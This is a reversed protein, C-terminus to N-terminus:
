PGAASFKRYEVYVGVTRGLLLGTSLAFLADVLVVIYLSVGTLPAASPVTFAFPNVNLVFLDLLLRVVFLTLYIAPILAGLRYSWVGDKWEVVVRRQVLVTAGISAAVLVAADVAYTWLPLEAYSAAITIAFLLVYFLAILFMRAPRVPTGRVMLVVRRGIIVVFLLLIVVPGIDASSFTVATM